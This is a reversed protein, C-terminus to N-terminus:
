GEYSDVGALILTGTSEKTLSFQGTIGGGLDTIAPVTNDPPIVTLTSTSDVGITSNTELTITGTYTNSGTINEVAGSYHGNSLVGNGFLFLPELTLDSKLQLVAGDAVVTGGATVSYASGVGASVQAIIMPGPIGTLPGHFTILF